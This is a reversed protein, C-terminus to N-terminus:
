AAAAYKDEMLVQVTWHFCDQDGVDLVSAATTSSLTLGMQVLRDLRETDRMIGCSLESWVCAQNNWIALQLTSWHKSPVTRDQQHVFELQVRSQVHDLLQLSQLLLNQGDKDINRGLLATVVGLNYALVWNYCCPAANPTTTTGTLNRSTPLILLFKMYLFPAYQGQSLKPDKAINYQLIETCDAWAYQYPCCSCHNNDYYGSTMASHHHHSNNTCCSVAYSLAEYATKYHGHSLESVAYNNIEIALNNSNGGNHSNTNRRNDSIHTYADCCSFRSPHCHTPVTTSSVSPCFTQTHITSSM